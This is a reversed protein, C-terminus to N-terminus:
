GRMEDVATPFASFVLILPNHYGLDYSGGEPMDSMTGPMLESFFVQTAM